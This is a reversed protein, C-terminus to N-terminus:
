SNGENYIEVTKLKMPKICLVEPTTETNFKM